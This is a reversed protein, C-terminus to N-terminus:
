LAGCVCGPRLKIVAMTPSTTTMPTRRKRRRRPSRQPRAESRRTVAARRQAVTRRSSRSASATTRRPPPLRPRGSRCLYFLDFPFPYPHTLVYPVSSQANPTPYTLLMRGAGGARILHHNYDDDNAINHVVFARVSSHFLTHEIPLPHTTPQNTQPTQSYYQM